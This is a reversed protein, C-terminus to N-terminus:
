FSGGPARPRGKASLASLPAWRAPPRPPLWRGGPRCDRPPRRPPGPAAAPPRAARREPLPGLGASGPPAPCPLAPRPSALRRLCAWGRGPARPGALGRAALSRAGLPPRSGLAGPGGRGEGRRGRRAEERARRAEEGGGAPGGPVRGRPRCRGERPGPFGPGRRGHVSRRRRGRGPPGRPLASRIRAAAGSAAPALARVNPTRASCTGPARRPWSVGPPCVRRLGCGASRSQVSRTGSPASGPSPRARASPM